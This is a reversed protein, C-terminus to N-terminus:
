QEYKFLWLESGAGISNSGSSLTIELSTVNTSTENWQGCVTGTYANGGPHISGWSGTVCMPIATSGASKRPYITVQGFVLDGTSTSSPFGLPIYNVQAGGHGVSGSTWIFEGQQNTTLGNPKLQYDPFTGGANNVLKYQLLWCGDTNGDLSSFTTSNADASITKHEILTLSGSGGGTPSYAQWASGNSREIINSEDTVCYLVGNNDTGAAPQNARTDRLIVDALVTM